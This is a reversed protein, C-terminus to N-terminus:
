RRRGAGEKATAAVDPPMPVKGNVQSARARIREAAKRHARAMAALTAYATGAPLDEAEEDLCDALDDMAQAAALSM